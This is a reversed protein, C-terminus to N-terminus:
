KQGWKELYWRVTQSLGDDLEIKPWWGFERRIKESNMAYRRDQGTRDPVHQIMRSRPEDGPIFKDLLDSISEIIELVSVENGGGINYTEGPDSKMMALYLAECHDRVHLWDRIQNGDGHVLMPWGRIGRLITLPILKEPHQYPGYNNSSNTIIWPLGYTNGYARVLHDSGAKTASYPSRPGYPSIESWAVEDPALSGFVEDTSVHHFLRIKGYNRARELLTFTGIINTQVFDRPNIISKEVHSEAAFHVITDIGSFELIEGILDGDCIDGRIFHHHDPDVGELNGLDGAYTLADLNYIELDPNRELVFRIFNSGIFGAGGTVLIKSISM